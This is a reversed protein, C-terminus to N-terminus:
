SVHTEKNSDSSTEQDSDSANTDQPKSQLDDQLIPVKASSETERYGMGTRDHALSIRTVRLDTALPIRFRKVQTRKRSTVGVKYEL